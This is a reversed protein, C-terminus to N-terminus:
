PKVSALQLRSGKCRGHLILRPPKRGGRAMGGGKGRAGGGGGAQDDFLTVPDTVRRASCGDSNEYKLHVVCTRMRTGSLLRTIFNLGPSTMLAM